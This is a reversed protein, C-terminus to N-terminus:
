FNSIKLEHSSMCDCHVQPKTFASLGLGIGAVGAATFIFPLGGKRPIARTVSAAQTTLTRQALAQHTIRSPCFQRAFVPRVGAFQRAFIPASPYAMVRNTFGTFVHLISM